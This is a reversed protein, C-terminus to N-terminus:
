KELGTRKRIWETMAELAAPNVTEEITGYETVAGTTAKQFLHNLGPLRLITVDKNGAEELAKKIEPLNQDPLVQTDLEGNMALVPCTVQRLAVRPDLVLFRKMWPSSVMQMQAKVAQDISKEDMAGGAQQVVIERLLQQLEADPKGATVADLIRGQMETQSKITAEDAGSARLIAGMQERLVERGNVGTGALMVIFAIDKSKAAAMPAAVGGESHGILGIRKPDVEPQRALFDVAALADAAFDNTTELGNKPSTSGQVGRDDARLVAIGNRSLQDAIVFFPKHEFLTEDRDQPGSGTIMFVAPHPGKGPPITLTGALVAGDDANTFTVERQTYPFPPKPEQPRKPAASEGDALRTLKLPFEQGVQKLVGTATKGGEEVKASFYAWSPKPMSPLGLTFELKEGTAVVDQLEGDKVGQAPISMSAGTFSGKRVIQVSFDLTTGGPLSVSGKWTESTPQPDAPPKAAPAGPDPPQTALSTGSLAGLLCLVLVVHVIRM